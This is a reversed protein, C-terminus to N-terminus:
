VIMGQLARVQTDLQRAAADDVGAAKVMTRMTSLVGLAAVTLRTPDGTAVALDLEAQAREAASTYRQFNKNDVPGLSRMAQVTTQAFESIGRAFDTDFAQQVGAGARGSIVSISGEVRSVRESLNAAAAVKQSLTTVQEGLGKMEVSVEGVKTDFTTVTEKIGAAAATAEGAAAVAAPLATGMERATQLASIRGTAIVTRDPDAAVTLVITDSPSFGESPAYGNLNTLEDATKVLITAQANLENFTDTLGNQVDVAPHGLLGGAHLYGDQNLDFEDIEYVIEPGIQDPPRWRPGKPDPIGSNKWHLQWGDPIKVPPHVVPICTRNVLESHRCKDIVVKGGGGAPPPDPPAYGALLGELADRYLACPDSCTGGLFADTFGLPPEWAHRYSCNFVWGTKVPHVWGLVVGNRTTTRDCSLEHLAECRLLDLAAFLVMNIWGCKYGKVGPLDTGGISTAQLRTILAPDVLPQRGNTLRTAIADRLTVYNGQPNSDLSLRMPEVTLLKDNDFDMWTGTIRGAVVRVAADVTHLKPHGGCDAQGCPPPDSVDDLAELVVSFGGATTDIFDYSPIVAVPPLTVDFGAPLVLATGSQDIALGSAITLTPGDVTGGLGCNIGFGILRGVIRDRALLLGTTMNLEDATLTQGPEYVPYQIDTM